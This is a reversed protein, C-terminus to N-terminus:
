KPGGKEHGHKLFHAIKTALQAVFADDPLRPVVYRKCAVCWYSDPHTMPVVPGHIWASDGKELPFICHHTINM